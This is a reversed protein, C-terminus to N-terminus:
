ENIPWTRIGPPMDGTAMSKSGLLTCRKGGNSEFALWPLRRVCFLTVILRFILLAECNLLHWTKGDISATALLLWVTESLDQLYFCLKSIIQLLFTVLFKVLLGKTLYKSIDNKISFLDNAFSYYIWIVIEFPVSVNSDLIFSQTSTCTSETAQCLYPSMISLSGNSTNLLCKGAYLYWKWPWLFSCIDVIRKSKACLM